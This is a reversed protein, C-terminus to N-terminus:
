DVLSQPQRQGLILENFILPPFLVWFLVLPHPLAWIEFRNKDYQM